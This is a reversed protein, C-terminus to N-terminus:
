ARLEPLGRRHHVPGDRRLVEAGLGSAARDAGPRWAAITPWIPLTAIGRPPRTTRSRARPMGTVFFMIAQTTPSAVLAIETGLDVYADIAEDPTRQSPHGPSLEADGPPSCTSWRRSRRTPCRRRLDAAPPGLEKLSRRRGARTPSAIYLVFLGLVPKGHLHPPIFEAPPAQLPRDRHGAGGARVGCLRPQGPDPEEGGRDPPHPTRGAGDPLSPAAPIRLFTAM